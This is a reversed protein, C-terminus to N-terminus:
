RSAPLANVTPVSRRWPSPPVAAGLGSTDRTAADKVIETWRVQPGKLPDPRCRTATCTMAYGLSPASDPPNRREM